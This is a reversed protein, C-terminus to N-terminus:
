SRTIRENPNQGTYGGHQQPPLLKALAEELEPPLLKAVTEELFTIRQSQLKLIDRMTELAQGQTAVRTQLLKFMEDNM